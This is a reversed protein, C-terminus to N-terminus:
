PSAINKWIQILAQFSRSPLTTRTHRSGRNKKNISTTTKSISVTYGTWIVTMSKHIICVAVPPPIFTEPLQHNSPPNGQRPFNQGRSYRSSCEDLFTLLTGDCKWNRDQLLHFSRPIDPLSDNAVPALHRYPQDLQTEPCYPDGTVQNSTLLLIIFTLLSNLIYKRFPKTNTPVLKLVNVLVARHGVNDM